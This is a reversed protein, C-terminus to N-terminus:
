KKILKKANQQELIENNDIYYVGKALPTYTISTIDSINLVGSNEIM